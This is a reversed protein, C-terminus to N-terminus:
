ADYPKIGSRVEEQQVEQVTHASTGGRPSGCMLVLKGRLGPSQAVRWPGGSRRRVNYSGAIAERTQVHSVVLRWVTHSSQARYEM